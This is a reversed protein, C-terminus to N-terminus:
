TAKRDHYSLVVVLPLEHHSRRRRQPVSGPARIGGARHRIRVSQPRHSRRAPNDKNSPSIQPEAAPGAQPYPADM